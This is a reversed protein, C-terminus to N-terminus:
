TLKNDIINNIQEMGKGSISNYISDLNKTEIELVKTDHILISYITNIIKEAIVEDNSTGIIKFEKMSDLVIKLTDKNKM